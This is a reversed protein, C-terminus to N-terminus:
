WCKGCREFGRRIAEAESVQEPNEMGSCGEYSHYKTGGETPIWVSSGSGESENENEFDWRPFQAYSEHDNPYYSRGDEFSIHSDDYAMDVFPTNYRGSIGGSCFGYIDCETGIYETFDRGGASEATWLHGGKDKITFCINNADVLTGTLHVNPKDKNALEGRLAYEAIIYGDADYTLEYSSREKAPVTPKNEKQEEANKALEIEEPKETKSEEITNDTSISEDSVEENQTSNAVVYEGTKSENESDNSDTTATVETAAAIAENANTNGNSPKSILGSICLGLMGVVILGGLVVLAVRDEKENEYVEIEKKLNRIEKREDITKLPHLLIRSKQKKKSELESLRAKREIQENEKRLADQTKKEIFDDIFKM